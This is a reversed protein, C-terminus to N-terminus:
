MGERMDEKRIVDLCLVDQEELTGAEWSADSSSPPTLLEDSFVSTYNDHRTESILSKSHVM